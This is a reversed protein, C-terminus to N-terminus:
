LRSGGNASLAWYGKPCRHSVLSTRTMSRSRGKKAVHQQVETSVDVVGKGGCDVLIMTMDLVAVAPAAPPPPAVLLLGV